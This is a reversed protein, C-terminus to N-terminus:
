GRVLQEQGVVLYCRSYKCIVDVISVIIATLRWQKGPTAVRDEVNIMMMMMMLLLLLLMLIMMPVHYSVRVGPSGGPGGLFYCEGWGIPLSM